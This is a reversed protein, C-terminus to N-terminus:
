ELKDPRGSIMKPDQVKLCNPVRLRKWKFLTSVLSERKKKFLLSRLILVRNKKLFWPAWNKKWPWLGVRTKLRYYHTCISQAVTSALLYRWHKSYRPIYLKSNKISLYSSFLSLLYISLCNWKIPVLFLDANFTKSHYSVPWSARFSWIKIFHIIYVTLLKM